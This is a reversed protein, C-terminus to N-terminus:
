GKTGITTVFKYVATGEENIEPGKITSTTLEPYQNSLFSLVEEPTFDPNPDKIETDKSGKKELKFQRTVGQVQLAMIKTKILYAHKHHM